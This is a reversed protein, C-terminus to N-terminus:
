SFLLPVERGVLQLPCRSMWDPIWMTMACLFVSAFFHDYRTKPSLPGPSFLFWLDTTLGDWQVVLLWQKVCLVVVVCM